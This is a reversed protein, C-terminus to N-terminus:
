AAIRQELSTWQDNVHRFRQQIDERLGILKSNNDRALAAVMDIRAHLEGVQQRVQDRLQAVESRLADQGKELAVFRDHVIEFRERMEARLSGIEGILDARTAILALDVKTAFQSWEARTPVEQFRLEVCEVFREFRQEFREFREEFRTMREEFRDMRDEFRGMREDTTM